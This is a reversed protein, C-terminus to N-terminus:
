PHPRPRLEWSSGGEHRPCRDPSQTPLRADCRRNRGTDERGNDKRWTGQCRVQVERPLQAAAWTHNRAASAQFPPVPPANRGAPKNSHRGNKRCIYKQGGAPGKGTCRNRFSVRCPESAAHSVLPKFTNKLESAPVLQHFCARDLSGNRQKISSPAIERRM